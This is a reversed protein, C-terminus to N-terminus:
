RRVDLVRAMREYREPKFINDLDARATVGRELPSRLRAPRSV